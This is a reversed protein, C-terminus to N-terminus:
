FTRMKLRPRLSHFSPRPAHPWWVLLRASYLIVRWAASVPLIVRPRILLSGLRRRIEAVLEELPAADGSPSRCSPPPSRWILINWVLRALIAHFICFFCSSPPYPDSPSPPRTLARSSSGPMGDPRSLSSSPASVRIRRANQSSPPHSCSLSARFGSPSCLRFSRPLVPSPTPITAVLFAM